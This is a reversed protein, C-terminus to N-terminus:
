QNMQTSLGHASSQQMNLRQQRKERLAEKQEPTLSQWRKHMNEKIAQKEEPTLNNWKQEAQKRVAEKQEPTMNQWKQKANEIAQQQDPTITESLIQPEFSNENNVTSSSTANPNGAANDAALAIPFYNFLSISLFLSLKLLRKM